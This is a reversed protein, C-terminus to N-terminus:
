LDGTEGRGAKYLQRGLLLALVCAAGGYRLKVLFLQTGHATETLAERNEIVFGNGELWATEVGSIDRGRLLLDSSWM